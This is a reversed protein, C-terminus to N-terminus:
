PERLTDAGTWRVVGECPALLRDVRSVLGCTRILAFARIDAHPLADRLRLAAAFLTRGKTIVDDVLVIRSPVERPVRSLGFSEYHERVTPREGAPAAASRRVPSRRELGVWVGHGIGIATLAAALQGAAGHAASASTSGPVPVLLVEPAFLGHFQRGRRVLAVVSGAYRPLWTPDAAKVRRCLTRSGEAVV